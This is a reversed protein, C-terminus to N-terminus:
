SVRVSLSMDSNYWGALGTLTGFLAKAAPAPSVLELVLNASVHLLSQVIFTIVITLTVMGANRSFFLDSPPIGCTIHSKRPSSSPKLDM